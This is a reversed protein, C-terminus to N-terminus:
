CNEDKKNRLFINTMKELLIRNEREIETFKQENNLLKKKEYAIKKTLCNPSSSNM